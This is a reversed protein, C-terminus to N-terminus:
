WFKLSVKYQLKDLHRQRWGVEESYHPQSRWLTYVNSKDKIVAQSLLSGFMTIIPNQQWLFDLMLRLKTLKKRTNTTQPYTLIHSHIYIYIYIYIHIYTVYCVTLSSTMLTSMPVAIACSGFLAFHAGILLKWNLDGAWGRRLNM